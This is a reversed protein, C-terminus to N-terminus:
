ARGQQQRQITSNTMAQITQETAMVSSVIRSKEREVLVDLHTAIPPAPHPPNAAPLAMSNLYADNMVLFRNEISTAKALDVIEFNPRSTTDPVMSGSKDRAYYHLRYHEDDVPVAIVAKMAGRLYYLPPPNKIESWPSGGSSSLENDASLQSNILQIKGAAAEAARDHMYKQASIYTKLDGHQRMSLGADLVLPQPAGPYNRMCRGIMQHYQARTTLARAIIIADTKPVDFGEGVMDVSILVKTRGDRYATIADKIQQQTLNSHIVSASVGAAVFADRMREAEDIRYVFAITSRDSAHQSWQSVCQQLYNSPRTKEFWTTAGAPDFDGLKDTFHDVAKDIFSAGSKTEIRLSITKPPLIQGAAIMDAYPITINPAKALRPHLALGDARFPTATTGLIRLGPNKALLAGIVTDYIGEDEKSHHAEDIYLEDYKDLRRAYAAATQVMTFVAKGTQDLSGESIVSQDAASCRTWQRFAQMNQSLLSHRGQLIMIKSGASLAVNGVLSYIRTKGSGTGARLLCAGSLMLHQRCDVAASQQIRDAAPNISPLTVDTSIM